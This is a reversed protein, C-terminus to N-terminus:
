GATGRMVARASATATEPEDDPKPEKQQISFEVLVPLHDSGTSALTQISNVFAYGKAFVQDIPLGAFRLSEPLKRYQWTAGAAPMVHLGGARAVRHVAASWTAANCDGAVVATEGLRSLPEALHSLQWPQEFPWPWSLHIAGVDVTTGGFDVSAIALAGRAFCAPETGEKFPRRSLIAVGFVLNPYPCVIQHPYAHSLLQLKGKWMDSVEDLTIVDPQIRGVLSLVKEPTPNDFRLNMQLLRYTPQEDSRVMFRAQSPKLGLDSLITSTTAFCAIAFVLGPLAYLRFRGFLLLLALVASAVALHARFHAFSDFAPHVDGFFGILLMVCAVALGALGLIQLLFLNRKM